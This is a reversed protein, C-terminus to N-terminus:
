QLGGLELGDRSSKGERTHRDATKITKEQTNSLTLQKSGVIVQSNAGDVVFSSIKKLRAIRKEKEEKPLKLWIQYRNFEKQTLGLNSLKFHKGIQLREKRSLCCKQVPDTESVEWQSYEPHNIFLPCKNCGCREFHTGLEYPEPSRNYQKKFDSILKPINM